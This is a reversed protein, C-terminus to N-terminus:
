PVPSPFAELISQGSTTLIVRELRFGVKNLLREHQDRTRQRGGTFWLMIVDLVKSWDPGPVDALLFEMVLLRAHPPAAARVAALIAAAQEDEWDHLIDMLLYVDAAPLPTTFFDGAQLRLRGSAAVAANEAATSEVVSPLDFLIGSAAPTADLVARLLHGNGGGIDAILADSPFDYTAAVGAVQVRSRSTMADDFLRADDPSGQLFAFYGDPNVKTPAPAGTQLTYDLYGFLEHYAPSGYMAVWGRYSRPHDARLLESAGTHAFRDGACAFVGYAALLRLTRHLADPNAGTAAALEGATRPTDGLADAVGFNVVSLLCHGVLLGAHLERLRAFPTPEASLESMRLM